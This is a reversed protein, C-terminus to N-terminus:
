STGEEKLKRQLNRESMNLNQAISKLPPVKPELLSYTLQYIKETFSGYRLEQSQLRRCAVENLIQMLEYDALLIPKKLINNDFSISNENTNYQIQTKFIREFETKEHPEFTVKLATPKYTGLTLFFLERFCFVLSSLIFHKITRPSSSTAQPHTTFTLTFEKSNESYNLTIVNSILNFFACSNQIADKITASSQILQGVIGLAALNYREGLHLGLHSDGSKDLVYEFFQAYLAYSIMETSEDNMQKQLTLSTESSLNISKEQALQFLNVVLNKSIELHEM